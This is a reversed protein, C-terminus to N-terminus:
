SALAALLELEKISSNIDLNNLDINDKQKIKFNIFNKSKIEVKYKFYINENFYDYNFVRLNEKKFNNNKLM